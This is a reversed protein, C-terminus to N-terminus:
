SSSADVSSPGQHWAEIRSGLIREVEVVRGHYFDRLLARHSQAMEPYDVGRRTNVRAIANAFRKPIRKSLDRLGLSRISLYANVHTGVVGPIITDDVGVFRCAQRFQDQPDNALEESIIVHLHARPFLALLHELHENYAGHQLYSFEGKWRTPDASITLENEIVESFTRRERGREKLLWYHSWARDIPNRLLAILKAGPLLEAIASIAPPRALYDATAEGIVQNRAADEFHAQYWEQGRDLHETFYQLEKPAMFVEPHDSLYRWMSTSGSRMAGVIVFNPRDRDSMSEGLDVM